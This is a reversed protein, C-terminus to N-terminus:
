DKLDRDQRFCHVYKSAFGYMWLTCLLIEMFEGGGVFSFIALPHIIWRNMRIEEEEEVHPYRGRRWGHIEDGEGGKRRRKRRNWGGHPCSATTLSRHRSDAAARRLPWAHLHRSVPLSHHRRLPTTTARLVSSCSTGPPTTASRRPRSLARPPLPPRASPRSAGERLLPSSASHLIQSKYRQRQTPDSFRPGWTCCPRRATVWSGPATRWLIRSWRKKQAGTYIFM